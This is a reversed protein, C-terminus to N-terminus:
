AQRAVSSPRSGDDQPEALLDAGSGIGQLDAILARGIDNEDEYDRRVAGDLLQLQHEVPPRRDPPSADRIDLLAARLRRAIQPNGAGTLRVEDFALHVYGEWGLVPEVLRLRGDRDHHM